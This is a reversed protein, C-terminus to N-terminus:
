PPSLPCAPTSRMEDHALLAVSPAVRRAIVLHHPSTLSRDRDCRSGANTQRTPGTGRLGSYPPAATGCGLVPRRAGDRPSEAMSPRVGCALHAALQCPRAGAVPQM